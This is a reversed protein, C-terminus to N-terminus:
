YKQIEIELPESFYEHDQACLSGKLQYRGPGIAEGSLLVQNFTIVFTLPKNPVLTLNSLAQTFMKDRSWKWILKAGNYLYFDYKQGSTFTIELLSSGTNLVTLAIAMTEGTKYVPKDCTVGAFVKAPTAARSAMIIIIPAIFLWSFFKKM